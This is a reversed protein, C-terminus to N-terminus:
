GGVQICFNMTFTPPMNNHPESGGTSSTTRSTGFGLRSSGGSHTATSAGRDHEHTHAPMEPVTLTHVYEGSDDDDQVRFIRAVNNIDSGTGAGIPMRGAAKAYPVWGPLTTCEEEVMIITNRPLHINQGFAYGAIVGDQYYAVATLVIPYLVALGLTVVVFVVSRRLWPWDSLARRLDDYTFM